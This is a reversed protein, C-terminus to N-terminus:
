RLVNLVHKIKCIKKYCEKCFYLCDYAIDKKNCAICKGKTIM